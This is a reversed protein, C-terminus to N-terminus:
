AFIPTEDDSELNNEVKKKLFTNSPLEQFYPSQPFFWSKESHVKKKSKQCLLHFYWIIANTKCIYFFWKKNKTWEEPFLNRCNIVIDRDDIQLKKESSIGGGGPAHFFFHTNLLLCFNTVFFVESAANSIREQKSCVFFFCKCMLSYFGM